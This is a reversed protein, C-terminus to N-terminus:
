KALDVHRKSPEVYSIARPIRDQQLGAFDCILRAWTQPEALLQDYPVRLVMDSPLRSILGEKEKWLWRQHAELKAPDLRPCRRIISEISEELPRDSTIVRLQDGLIEQLINGMACLQPYKMGAARKTKAAEKRKQTIFGNLRVKLKSEAWKLSTNPFPCAEECVKALTVAEFGCSKNPDNGYFGTLKNGLHLGMHYCVGALCSSGSSHLGLIAYFPKNFPDRQAMTEASQWFRDRNFDKGSIDSHGERQGILWAPPCYINDKMKEHRRGLHHDIHHGGIWKEPGQDWVHLWRYLEKAFKQSVAFAHTRNVNFPRYVLSSVRKPKGKREHLHEGGLYVMDWDDPVEKLFAQVKEMFGECCIADDEMFLVSGWDQNLMQELILCHSRYCGWAGPPQKWWKPPPCKKGNIATFSQPMPLVNAWASPLDEYFQALKDERGQLSVVFSKDFTAPM